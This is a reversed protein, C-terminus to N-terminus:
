SEMNRRHYWILRERSMQSQESFGAWFQDTWLCRDLKVHEATAKWEQYSKSHIVRSFRRFRPPRARRRLTPSQPNSSRRPRVPIVITLEQTECIRVLCPVFWFASPSVLSSQPFQDRGFM